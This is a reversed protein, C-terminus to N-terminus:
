QTFPYTVNGIMYATSSLTMSSNFYINGNNAVRFLRTDSGVSCLFHVSNPPAKSITWLIDSQAYTRAPLILAFEITLMNNGPIIIPTVSTVVGNTITVNATDEIKRWHDDWVGNAMNRVYTKTGFANALTAYQTIHIRSYAYSWITWYASYPINLASSEASYIVNPEIADNADNVENSIGKLSLRNLIGTITGDGFSSIDTNGLIGEVTDVTSNALFVANATTIPYITDDTLHNKITKIATAM